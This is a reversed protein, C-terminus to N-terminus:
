PPLRWLPPYFCTTCLMPFVTDPPGAHVVKGQELFVIWDAMAAIDMNQTCQLIYPLQLGSIAEHLKMATERDLHTDLEDLLLLEPVSVLATALAVLVKEGGSLTRTSLELLGELGLGAAIEPLRQEVDACPTSRFRLPSSIEDKVREFIMNRDPFESVWGVDCSRPEKGGMSVEGLAPIEIGACIELLTTKGSGNPGIIATHGPPMDLHPIHLTRHFLDRIEIM